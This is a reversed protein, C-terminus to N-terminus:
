VTAIGESTNKVFAIESTQANVLRAGATRVADCNAMWDPYHFSGNVCADEAFAQMAQATRRPLPAVAAHNLYTFRETVPFEARYQACLTANKVVNASEIQQMEQNDYGM